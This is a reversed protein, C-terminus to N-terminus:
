LCILFLFVIETITTELSIGSCKSGETKIVQLKEWEAIIVNFKIVFLQRKNLYYQKILLSIFSFHPAILCHAISEM